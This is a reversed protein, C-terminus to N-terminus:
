RRYYRYPYPYPGWLPGYGPWGYFMYRDHATLYAEYREADIQTKQMYDLVPESVGRLKLDALQSGSLRYLARSERMRRIIEEPPTKSQSMQVVEDVTPAPPLPKLSACGSLLLAALLIVSTRM